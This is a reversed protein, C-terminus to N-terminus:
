FFGLAPPPPHCPPAPLFVCTLAELRWDSSMWAQLWQYIDQMGIGTHFNFLSSILLVPVSFSVRDMYINFLM